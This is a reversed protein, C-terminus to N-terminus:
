GSPTLSPWRGAVEPSAVETPIERHARAVGTGHTGLAAIEAEMTVVWPSISRCCHSYTGSPGKLELLKPVERASWNNMLVM